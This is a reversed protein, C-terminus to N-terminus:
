CKRIRKWNEASDRSFWDQNPLKIIKGNVNYFRWNGETSYSYNGGIIYSYHVRDFDEQKPKKM